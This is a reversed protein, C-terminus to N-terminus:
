GDHTVNKQGWSHRWLANDMLIISAGLFSREGLLCAFNIVGGLSVIMEMCFGSDLSLKGSIRGSFPVFHRSQSYHFNVQYGSYSGPSLPPQKQYTSVPAPPPSATRNRYTPPASDMSSPSRSNAPPYSHYGRDQFYFIILGNDFDQKLKDRFSGFPTRKLGHFFFNKSENKEEGVYPM